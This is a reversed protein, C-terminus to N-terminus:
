PECSMATAGCDPLKNQNPLLGHVCGLRITSRMSLAVGVAPLRDNTATWGRRNWSEDRCIGNRVAFDVILNAFLPM